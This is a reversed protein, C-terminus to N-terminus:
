IIGESAQRKNTRGDGSSRKMASVVIHLPTWRYLLIYEPLSPIIAPIWALFSVHCSVTTTNGIDSLTPCPKGATQLVHERSRAVKIM